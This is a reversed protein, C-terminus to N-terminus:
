RTERSLCPVLNARAWRALKGGELQWPGPGRRTQGVDGPPAWFKERMWCEACIQDQTKTENQKTKEGPTKAGLCLRGEFLSLKHEPPPSTTALVGARPEPRRRGGRRWSASEGSLSGIAATSSPTRPQPPAGRRTQEGFVVCWFGGNIVGRIICKSYVSYIYVKNKNTNRGLIQIQKPDHPANKKAVVRTHTRCSWDGPGGLSREFVQNALPRDGPVEFTRGLPRGDDQTATKNRTRFILSKKNLLKSWKNVESCFIIIMWIQFNVAVAGRKEMTQRLFNEGSNCFVWM